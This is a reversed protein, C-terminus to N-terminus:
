LLPSLTEAITVDTAGDSGHDEVHWCASLVANVFGWAAVEAAEMELMEGFISVRRSLIRALNPRTALEPLPNMLFSGVDYGRPGVIGKPDIALYPERSATLINDHHLDAHLLVPEDTQLLDSLLDNAKEVVAYPLPGDGRSHTNVYKPLTRTWRRLPRFPHGESVPRWLRGLLTAAVRVAEDDDDTRRLSVGPTLRELLLAQVDPAHAILKAIGDGDYFELAAAERTLEDTPPSLKLVYAAGDAGVAPAVVHYSLNPFPAGVTVNWRTECMQIHDNLRELWPAADEHIDHLNRVLTPPLKVTELGVANAM